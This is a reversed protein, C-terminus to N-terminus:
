ARSRSHGALVPSAGPAELWESAQGLGLYSGALDSFHLFPGRELGGGGGGGFLEWLLARIAGGM